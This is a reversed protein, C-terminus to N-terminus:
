GYLAALGRLDDTRNADDQHIVLGAVDAAGVQAITAPLVLAWTTAPAGDRLGMAEAVWGWLTGREELLQATLQVVLAVATTPSQRPTAGTPRPQAALRQPWCRRNILARPICWTCRRRTQRHAKTGSVM